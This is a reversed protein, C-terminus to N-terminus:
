EGVTPLEDVLVNSLVSGDMRVRRLYFKQVPAHKASFQWSGRPDNQIGLNAIATNVAKGTLPKGSAAVSSIAQDLVSAASYGYAAPENPAVGYAHQYAVVFQRNEDNDLTSTYDLSSYIGMAASGEVQLLDCCTLPGSAYVQIGRDALGLRHYDKVFQVAQMGTAWVYIAKAGSQEAETLYSQYSTKNSYPAYAPKGDPNALKGGSKTFTDVFTKATDAKAAGLDTGLVYVPGSVHQAVYPGLAEPPDSTLNSACWIYTLDPVQDTCALAAVLPVKRQTIPKQLAMVTRVDSVGTVALLNREALLNHEATAAKESAPNDGADQQVVQVPRGGLRNGHQKLYLGLGNRMSSGINKQIGSMDAIFGIRIPKRPKATATGHTCGAAVLVLVAPIALGALLRRARM